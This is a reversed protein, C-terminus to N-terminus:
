GAMELVAAITKKYAAVEPPIRAVAPAANTITVPGGKRNMKREAWNKVWAIDRGQLFPNAKVVGAGMVDLIQANDPASLAVHAGEAGLFHALYLRGASIAHGRARLYAEGERALNTVMERSLTPDFRLKLLEERSMTAALDPRYTRMMRIWTSSIFQGLGTASSRSNKASANGASEVKIIQNVLSEVANSASAMMVPASGAPPANFPDMSAGRERLEFHLHPGTSRGTTGVFGIVDGARVVAGVKGLPSFKSMHAYRTERGGAHAIKIVNGYGGGNGAFSVRGDFAALIPTGTPAAWDVGHHVKVKKLIPHFRPGFPSTLVGSVPTVMGNSASGVTGAVGKETFCKFGEGPVQAVYCIKDGSPGEIAAYLVQGPGAGNPGPERAYLLTMRDGTTAFAELDNDQSLLVISEGVVSTPVGNRIAASYFADLLRYKRASVTDTSGDDEAYSFLEDLVWPDASQVISGDDELAVSGIYTDRTYVSLQVPKAGTKSPVSRVALVYDAPLESLEAILPTGKEQFSKAADADFGNDGLIDVLSRNDKLRLFLDNYALARQDERKVITLSTTNEIVTQTYTDQGVDEGDISDGWSDGDLSGQDATTEDLDPVEFSVPTAIGPTQSQTRQAQFFAFEERSSPLTTILKEQRTIMDDQVLVLTDIAFQGVRVLPLDPHSPLPRAKTTLSADFRLVMPDGAVDVFASAYALADATSTATIDEELGEELEELNETLEEDTFAEADPPASITIFGSMAIWAVLALVAVGGGGILLAPGHQQRFKRRSSKKKAQKFRPDIEM